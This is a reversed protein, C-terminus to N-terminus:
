MLDDLTIERKISRIIENRVKVEDAPNEIYVKLLIEVGTTKINTLKILYHPEDLILDCNDLIKELQGIKEDLDYKNLINVDFLVPFYGEKTYNIYPKTTFVVNPITTYKRKYHLEVFKLGINEVQGMHGDIQIVDGVVFRKELIIMMGSIVNSLTDKAALTVALSVLGLSVLLSQFDIGLVELIGLLIVLVTLYRILKFVMDISSDSISNFEYFKSLSRSIIKYIITPIAIALILYIITNGTNLLNLLQNTVM